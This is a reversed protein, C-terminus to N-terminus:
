CNFYGGCIPLGNRYLQREANRKPDFKNNYGNLLMDEVAYGVADKAYDENRDADSFSIKDAYGTADVGLTRVFLVTMQERSLNQGTGFTGEGNGKILGANAAVEVYKYSYHNAPVDSFTTEQPPNNVDLNLAKALISVFDQRIIKGTPDFKGGDKGNIIGAEALQLITDKAYTNNLNFFNNRCNINSRHHEYNAFYYTSM